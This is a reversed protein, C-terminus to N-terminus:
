LLLLFNICTRALKNKFKNKEFPIIYVRTVLIMIFEPALIDSNLDQQRIKPQSSVKERSRNLWIYILITTTNM